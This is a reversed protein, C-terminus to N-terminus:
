RLCSMELELRAKIIPIAPVLRGHRLPSGQPRHARNTFQDDVAQDGVADVAHEAHGALAIEAQEIGKVAAAVDVRHRAPVLGAGAEHCDGIRPEGPPGADGAHAAAGAGAIRRDRHMRGPLVLHREDQDDALDGGAVGAAVGELLDVVAGHVARDGLPDRFDEIGRAHRFSQQARDPGRRRACRPRHHDGDGFIDEGGDHCRGHDRRLRRNAGRGTGVVDRRQAVPDAAGRPREDEGAAAEVPGAPAFRQAAEQPM